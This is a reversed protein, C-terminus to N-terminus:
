PGFVFIVMLGVFYVPACLFIAALFELLRAIWTGEHRVCLVGGYVGLLLGSVMAGVLLAIDAPLADALVDKVPLFPRQRSIGLDLHFFVRNLYDALGGLASQEPDFGWPALLRLMLFTIAAVAVMIAVAAVARRVVFVAFSDSM